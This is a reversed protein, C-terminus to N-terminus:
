INGVHLIAQQYGPAQPSFAVNVICTKGAEVPDDCNTDVIRFASSKESDDTVIMISSQDITQTENSQNTIMVSRTLSEGGTSVSNFNVRDASFAVPIEGVRSAANVTTNTDATTGGNTILSPLSLLAWVILGILLLSVLITRLGFRSSGDMDAVQQREEYFPPPDQPPGGSGGGGLPIDALINADGGIIDLNHRTIDISVQSDLTAHLRLAEQLNNRAREEEGLCLARTGLQHLAWGETIQDDVRRSARLAGKLVQEWTGWFRGWFLANEVPRTLRIVQTWRENQIARQLVQMIPGIELLIQDPRERYREVWALYHSLTKQAWPTLDLSQNLTEQLNGLLRYRGNEEGILHQDVLSDLVATINGIDTLDALHSAMLSAGNLVTLVGMVNQEDDSSPSSLLLTNLPTERLRQSITVVSMQKVRAFAMVQLIGLPQHRLIECITQAAPQEEPRFSRGMESEALQLADSAPLGSVPITQWNTWPHHDTSAILFTSNPLAEILSELDDLPLNVDDIAILAAKNQLHVKLESATVKALPDSDFFRDFLQQQLDDLTHHLASLSIIGDPFDEQPVRSALRHLLMSKGAGPPGHFEVSRKAILARGARSQESERDLLAGRFQTPVSYSLVPKESLAMEQPSHVSIKAGYASNTLRKNPGVQISQVLGSGSPLSVPERQVDTTPEFDEFDRNHDFSPQAM